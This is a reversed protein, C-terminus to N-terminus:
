GQYIDAASYIGNKTFGISLLEPDVQFFSDRELGIDYTLYRGKKGYVSPGLLRRVEEFTKGELMNCRILDDALLQRLSPFGQPERSFLDRTVVAESCPYREYIIMTSWDAKFMEKTPFWVIFPDSKQFSFCSWEHKQRVKCPGDIVRLAERCSVPDGAVRVDFQHGFKQATGCTTRAESGVAPEASVQLASFLLVVVFLAVLARAVVGLPRSPVHM